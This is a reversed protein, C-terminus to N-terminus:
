FMYKIGILASTDSYGSKGLKESVNGWLNLRKNIQGEVGLKLEGPNRSGEQDVRVGNMKAGFNKSNHLWNAEIFPQFVRDKGRDQEHQGQLYLRAGLRTMLNGDGYSSVRTGNTERHDKAKVNMWVVQAQPQLFLKEQRAKNDKLLFTYGSELSLVEGRSKYKEGSINDGNISHKFWNYQAWSDVYLGTKEADNQYWTGYVGASYGNTQSKAKYDTLRSQTNGKGNVYGFMLGIHTRDEGSSSWSAIDGGGQIVFRNSQTKAQSDSSHSRNHGGVTRLWMSTPHEIQGKVADTYQPEGM